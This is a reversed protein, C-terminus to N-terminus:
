HAVVEKWSNPVFGRGPGKRALNEDYHFSPHGNFSVGLSDVSGVIDYSNNGGGGFDVIAEPAYITGTYAANGHFSISNVTPLAYIALNLANQTSNNISANGTTSANAGLYITVSCNAGIDIAQSGSLSFGNPMWINVNVPAGNPSTISLNGVTNIQYYGSNTIASQSTLTPSGLNGPLSADNFTTNMDDTLFGPQVGTNAPHTPDSGIWSLDGASAGNGNFHVDGGPGTNLHGYIATNNGGTIAVNVDSDSSVNGNSKHTNFNYTGYGNTGMDSHSPDASDFSDIMTLPALNINTLATMAGSFLPNYYTQVYVERTVQSQSNAVLAVQAFTPGHASAVGLNWKAVGVAVVVPNTTGINVGGAITMANTVWVRYSGGNGDANAQTKYFVSQNGNLDTWGNATANATWNTLLTFNQGFNTANMNIVAMGEELGAEALVM